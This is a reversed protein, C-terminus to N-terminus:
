LITCREHAPHAPNSMEGWIEEIQEPTLHRGLAEVLAPIPESDKSSSSQNGQLKPAEVVEFQTPATYQLTALSM